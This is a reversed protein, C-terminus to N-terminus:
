PTPPGPRAERLKYCPCELRLLDHYKLHEVRIELRQARKGLRTAIQRAAESNQSSAHDAIAAAFDRLIGGHLGEAVNDGAFM